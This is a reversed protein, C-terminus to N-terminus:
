TCYCFYLIWTYNEKLQCQNPVTDIRSVVTLFFASLHTLESSCFQNDPYQFGLGILFSQFFQVHKARLFSFQPTIYYCKGLIQFTMYLLPLIKEGDNWLVPCM